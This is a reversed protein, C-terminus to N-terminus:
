DDISILIREIFLSVFRTWEEEPIHNSAADDIIKGLTYAQTFVAVVHADFGASMLGREQAQRFLDTIAGTLRDQEVALASSLRDNHETAGILRAREMRAFKRDRGQTETTVRILGALLEDRSQSANLAESIMAISWDVYRAFRIVLATEILEPLDTFHHYLSGRATQSSQLIMDGTIAEPRHSDLLWIACDILLQRTPHM